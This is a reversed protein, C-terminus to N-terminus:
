RGRRGARWLSAQTATSSSAPLGHSIRSCPEPVRRNHSVYRL